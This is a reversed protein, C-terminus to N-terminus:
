KLKYLEYVKEDLEKQILFLEEDAEKKSKHHNFQDNKIQFARNFIQEFIELQEQNPIIMPIQRVDNIQLNVSFNIFTRLYEFIFDSNLLCIFYNNPIYPLLSYLSMSAVDNISKMKIRCKIGRANPNLVNIWCFGERFYFQPNRVVPMGIGKKGSNKYLFKVNEKSWDICFPSKLYWRNGEKDGKDYLVFNPKGSSIGNKKEDDTLKDIDAKQNIRIIRYIYGQGFIDRGYKEKLSDFLQVIQNESLNNLHKNADQLSKSQKFEEIKNTSIAEFFKNGRLNKINEAERSTEIVGIFKGNNATALGQGGETVLGLLTFDGPRLNLRYEDLIDEYKSIKKSTSIYRWWKTMLKCIEKNYKDYIKMNIQTPPFFVKNPSNRYISIDSKYIEPKIFDNKADKFIFNYNNRTNDEKKIIIIAPEVLPEEFVNETKILEIIKNEQFLKRLNIKSQITLYTDSSIFTVIGKEKLILFAKQFFYNYLDDSINYIKEYEELIKKDIGKNSIYPPNAIVIDFGNNQHFIESFYVKFDFEKHGKSIKFILNEIEDKQQKKRSPNVENILTIKNKELDNILNINSIDLDISRLSDGCIIKYDLNPLPKIQKIDDEDVVLSLWLRLKAIEVAGPDIDVGYLSNEICGRKLNYATKTKDKLFTNLAIRTKVIESMMGVLFAGSGVAPDCVKIEALKDDIIKANSIINQSIINNESDALIENSDVQECYKVFNEIEDKSLKNETETALYNVLSQQCMYHVIERPTYYTGKSKRDKVELLNEFVKGLMEPDVAVEKELPEDEKVTFNYRDFVGLIGDDIDGEKTKNKNSFLENPLLIDTHVWDYNNIPDFLGGNLFPIKCKFMSLYDDDYSRDIRM